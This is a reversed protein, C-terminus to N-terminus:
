PRGVIDVVGLALHELVIPVAAEAIAVAVYQDSMSVVIGTALRASSTTIGDGLSQIGYLEVRGGPELAASGSSLPLSVLREGPELGSPDPFLRDDVLVEGAFLDSRATAGVRLHGSAGDPLLGVPWSRLEVDAPGLVSGAAVDRQVIVVDVTTGLGNMTSRWELAVDIAAVATLGIALRLLVRRPELRRFRAVVADRRPLPGAPPRVLRHM